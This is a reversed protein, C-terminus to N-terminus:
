NNVKTPRWGNLWREERDEVYKIFCQQCCEFKLLYINDSAETFYKQCTPCGKSGRINLLRKKILFGDKEIKEENKEKLLCNQEIEKLQESYEKELTENWHSRFDSLADEGYKNRIAHEIQQLEELSRKPKM